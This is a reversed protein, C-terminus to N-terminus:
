LDVIGVPENGTLDKEKLKVAMRELYAKYVEKPVTKASDEWLCYRAYGWVELQDMFNTNPRVKRKEKVLALGADRSLGQKWMLYAIVM